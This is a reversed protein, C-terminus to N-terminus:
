RARASTWWELAPPLLRCRGFCIVLPSSRQCWSRCSQSRTAIPAAALRRVCPTTVPSVGRPCAASPLACSSAACPRSSPVRTSSCRPWCWWSRSPHVTTQAAAAAATGRWCARARARRSWDAVTLVPGCLAVAYKKKMEDRETEAAHIEDELVHITRDYEACKDSLKQLAICPAHPPHLVRVVQLKKNEEELAAATRQADGRVTKVRDNAATVLHNQELIEREKAKVEQKLHKIQM